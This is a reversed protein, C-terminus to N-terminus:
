LYNLNKGGNSCFMSIVTLLNKHLVRSLVCWIYLTYVYVVYPTFLLHTICYYPAGVHLICRSVLPGQSIPYLGICFPGSVAPVPWYYQLYLPGQRVLICLVWVTFSYWGESVPRMHVKPCHTCILLMYVRYVCSSVFLHLPSSWYVISTYVYICPM